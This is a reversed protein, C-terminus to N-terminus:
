SELRETRGRGQNVERGKRDKNVSWRGDVRGRRGKGETKRGKDRWGEERDGERM